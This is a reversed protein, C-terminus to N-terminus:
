NMRDKFVPHVGVHVVASDQNVTLSDGDNLRMAKIVEKRSPALMWFILATIVTCTLVIYSFTLMFSVLGLLVAGEFMALRLIFFKQYAELKQALALQTDVKSTMSHFLFFAIPLITASYAVVLITFTTVMESDEFIPLEGMSNLYFIIPVLLLTGAGMARHLLNLKRFYEGITM